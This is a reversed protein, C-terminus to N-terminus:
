HDHGEKQLREYERYIGMDPDSSRKLLEKRKKADAIWRYIWSIGYRGHYYNTQRYVSDKLAEDLSIFSYGKARLLSVLKDYCHANLPIDHFLFIHDITRGYIELSLAEMETFCKM